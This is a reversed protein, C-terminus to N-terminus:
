DLKPFPTLAWVGVGDDADESRGAVRFRVFEKIDAAGIAARGPTLASTSSLSVWTADFGDRLEIQIVIFRAAGRPAPVDFSFTGAQVRHRATEDRPEPRPCDM